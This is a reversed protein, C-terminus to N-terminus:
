RTSRLPGVQTEMRPGSALRASRISRERTGLAHLSAVKRWEAWSPDTEKHAIWEPMDPKAVFPSEDRECRECHKGDVLHRGCFYLGCGTEGGYPQAGCVHALGRDIKEDCDPHDCFAPVGYGIDRQWMSDYGVAWGM